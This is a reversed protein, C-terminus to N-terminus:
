RPLAPLTINEFVKLLSRSFSCASFYLYCFLFLRSVRQGSVALPNTKRHSRFNIICCLGATVQCCSDKRSRAIRQQQENGM